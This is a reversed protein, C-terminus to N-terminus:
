KKEPYFKEENSLEELFMKLVKSSADKGAHSFDKQWDTFTAAGEAKYNKETVLKGDGDVVKVLFEINFSSPPWTLISTSIAKTRIEPIFIYMAKKNDGEVGVPNLMKEVEEHTNYLIKVFGSELDRYPFYELKDGSTTSDIVLMDRNSQSIYYGIKRKSLKESKNNLTRLDPSINLTHSCSLVLVLAFLYITKLM